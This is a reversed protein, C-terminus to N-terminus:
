PTVIDLLEVDFTLDGAPYGEGPDDGYALDSPIWLRRVEGEVMLQLGETWGKIVGDVEFAVPGDESADFLMGDPLWGAYNVRVTDSPFPPREGTGEEILRSALGSSTVEADSPAAAVDDPARLSLRGVTTASSPGDNGGDDSSGGCAWASAALASIM